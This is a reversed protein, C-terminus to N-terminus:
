HATLTHPKQRTDTEPRPSPGLRIFKVMLYMEVVIFVTYLLVFGSLSFVLQGVSHSSASLWTPLVGYVTWPQRGTESVIWGAENAIFPVPIMWPAFKLFWPHQDLKRRLSYITALMLFGLMLFACAVMIRFSWFILAVPPITDRAAQLIEAANAKKLDPAYRELLLAYGLDDQHANFVALAQKDHPHAALQELAEAAPIGNRIKTQAHIILQDIGPIVGTM